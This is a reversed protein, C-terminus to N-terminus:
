GVDAGHLLTGHPCGLIPPAPVYMVWKKGGRVLANWASTGNPDIHFTSGSRKPGIILWRNAPRPSGSTKADQRRGADTSRAYESGHKPILLDFLDDDFYDPVTYDDALEPATDAFFKDFM